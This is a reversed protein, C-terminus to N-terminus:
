GWLSRCHGPWLRWDEGRWKPPVLHKSAAAPLFLAVDAEPSTGGRVPNSPTQRVKLDRHIFKRSHIYEVGSVIQRFISLSKEENREQNQNENKQRIWERLTRTSCLEMQIYLFKPSDQASRSLLCFRVILGRGRFACFHACNWPARVWPQWISQFHESVNASSEWM